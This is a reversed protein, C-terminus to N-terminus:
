MQEVVEAVRGVKSQKKRSKKKKKLCSGVTYSLSAEFEVAQQRLKRLALFVPL